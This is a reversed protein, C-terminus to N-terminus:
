WNHVIVFPIHPIEARKVKLRKDSMTLIQFETSGDRRIVKLLKKASDSGMYNKINEPLEKKIKSYYHNLLAQNLSKIEEDQVRKTDPYTILDIIENQIPEYRKHVKKIVRNKFYIDM